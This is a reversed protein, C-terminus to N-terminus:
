EPTFNASTFEVRFGTYNGPVGSPFQINYAVFYLYASSNPMVIGGFRFHNWASASGFSQSPVPILPTLMLLRCSQREGAPNELFIAIPEDDALLMGTVTLVYKTSGSAIPPVPFATRYIYWGGATNPGDALPSIWQSLGDNPNFSGPEPADVWAPGFTLSCPSPGGENWSASPYPTALQWNGDVSTGGSQPNVPTVLTSTSCGTPLPSAPTLGTNCLGTAPITTQAVAASSLLLASVLLNMKSRISLCFMVKGGTQIGKFMGATTYEGLIRFAVALEAVTLSPPEPRSRPSPWTLEILM